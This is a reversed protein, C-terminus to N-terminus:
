DGYCLIVLVFASHYDASCQVSFKQWRDPIYALDEISGSGYVDFSIEVSNCGEVSKSHRHLELKVEM